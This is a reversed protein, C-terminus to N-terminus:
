KKARRKPKVDIHIDPIEVESALEEKVEKMEKRWDKEKCETGKHDWQKFFGAIFGLMAGIAILDPSQVGFVATFGNRVADGLVPTMGLIWGTIAGILAGLIAFIFIAVIGLVVVALGVFIGGVAIGLAKLMDM